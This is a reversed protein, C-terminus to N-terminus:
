RGGLIPALNPVMFTLRTPTPIAGNHERVVSQSPVGFKATGPTVGGPYRATYM